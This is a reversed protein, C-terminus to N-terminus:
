LHVGVCAHPNTFYFCPAEYWRAPVPDTAGDQSKRAGEVHAEFSVSDRISAPHLPPLLRVGTVAPGPEAGLAAAAADFLAARGGRKILDDIDQGAGLDHLRDGDGLVADRVADQDEYRAFRTGPRWRDTAATSRSRRAPRAGGRWWERHRYCPVTAAPFYGLRIAAM